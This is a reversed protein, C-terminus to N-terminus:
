QYGKLNNLEVAKLAFFSEKIGLGHRTKSSHVLICLRCLIARKRQPQRDALRIKPTITLSGSRM